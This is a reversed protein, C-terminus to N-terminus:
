HLYHAFPRMGLVCIATIPIPLMHEGRQLLYIYQDCWPACHQEYVNVPYCRASLNALLYTHYDLFLKRQNNDIVPTRLHQGVSKLIHQM